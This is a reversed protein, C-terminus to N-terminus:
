CPGAINQIKGSATRKKWQYSYVFLKKYFFDNKKRSFLSNKYVAGPVGPLCKQLCSFTPSASTGQSQRRRQRQRQKTGVFRKEGNRRGLFFSVYSAKEFVRKKQQSFFRQKKVWRVKSFGPVAPVGPLCCKNPGPIHPRAYRCRQTYEMHYM